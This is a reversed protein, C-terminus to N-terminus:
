HTALTNSVTGDREISHAKELAARLAAAAAALENRMDQSTAEMGWAACMDQVPGALQSFHAAVVDGFGLPPEGTMHPPPHM